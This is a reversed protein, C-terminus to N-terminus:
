VPEAIDLGRRRWTNPDTPPSEFGRLSDHFQFLGILDVPLCLLLSRQGHSESEGEHVIGKGLGFLVKALEGPEHRDHTETPELSRTGLRRPRVPTAVLQRPSGARVAPVPPARAGGAPGS